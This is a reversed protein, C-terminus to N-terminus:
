LFAFTMDAGDDEDDAAAFRAQLPSGATEMWVLGAKMDWWYSIM